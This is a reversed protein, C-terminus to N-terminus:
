PSFPSPYPPVPNPTGVAGGGRGDWVPVGAGAERAIPTHLPVTDKDGGGLYHPTWAPIHWCPDPLAVPCSPCCMQRQGWGDGSRGTTVTRIYQVHRAQTGRHRPGAARHCTHALTPPPHAVAHQHSQSCMRAPTAPAHTGSAIDGSARQAGVGGPTPLPSGEQAPHCHCWLPALQQAAIEPLLHLHTLCCSGRCWFGAFLEPTLGWQPWAVGDWLCGLFWSARLLSLFSCSAALKVQTCSHIKNM